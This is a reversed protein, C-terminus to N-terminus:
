LWHDEKKTLSVTGRNLKLIDTSERLREQWTRAQSSDGSGPHGVWFLGGGKDVTDPVALSLPHCGENRLETRHNKLDAVAIDIGDRHVRYDSTDLMVEHMRIPLGSDADSSMFILATKTVGELNHRNTVIYLGGDHEILFGTGNSMSDGSSDLSFVM